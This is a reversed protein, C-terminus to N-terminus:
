AFARAFFDMTPAAFLLNSQKTAQAGRLSPWSKREGPWRGYPNLNEFLGGHASVAERDRRPKRALNAQIERGGTVSPAPFAPHASCRRDRTCFQLFVCVLM